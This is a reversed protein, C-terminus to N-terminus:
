LMKSFCHGEGVHGLTPLIEFLKQYDEPSLANQLVASNIELTTGVALSVFPDFGLAAQNLDDEKSIQGDGFIHDFHFTIELGANGNEELIGKREDGVYEGCIYSYKSALKIHFNIKQEDREATGVIVLPYGSEGPVMNWSIANYHGALADKITGILIPGTGQPGAALDITYPGGLYARNVARIDRNQHPDYPPDSQYATIDDMTVSINTFTLMWGDKSVFGQRVFDEGNAFIELTGTQKSSCGLLPIFLFGTIVLISKYKWGM